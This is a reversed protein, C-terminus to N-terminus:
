RMVWRKSEFTVDADTRLTAESRLDYTLELTKRLFVQLPLGNTDKQVPHNVVATENSLGTIYLRAQKAQPDFDPWMVLVDVAHDEGQLLRNGVAYIPQLLPYKVQYLQRLHHALPLPINGFSPVLQGTDTLLDCRAYFEMDTRTNNRITLITYWFRQVQSDSTPQWILPKLPEYTVDATWLGAKQVIMPKPAGAALSSLLLATLLTWFVVQKM